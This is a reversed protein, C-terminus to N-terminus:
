RAMAEWVRSFGPMTKSTCEIDDLTIGPVRLGILAGAHAMRHDAYTRFVGPQLTTPTIALGDETERCNGGLATIQTSLAALRNTEHGRIHGVGRITSPTSALAALAAVVPTLESTDHLDIDTGAIDGTGSVTARGDSITVSAGMAQLIDTVRVGPQTTHAPWGPVTVRGGAVLAAALFVAATTLDPEIIEDLAAIPSAQVEWVTGDQGVDVGRSRLAAITMQIHPLSPVPGGTHIIRVGHPFRPGSLLLASIFQSSSSSDIRVEHGTVPGTVRLPLFSGKVQAGLQALAECLPAMPRASAAEDGTFLVSSSSLAAVPPLFRMVTGALGCDIEAEAPSNEIPRCAWVENGPCMDPNLCVDRDRYADPEQDGMDLVRDEVFGGLATLGSIMLDTDRARLGGRITGPGDALASLVLARATASKSGPVVIEAEVPGSPVPAEWSTM